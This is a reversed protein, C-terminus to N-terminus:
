VTTPNPYGRHQTSFQVAKRYAYLMLRTSSANALLQEFVTHYVNLCLDRQFNSVDIHDPPYNPSLSKKLM